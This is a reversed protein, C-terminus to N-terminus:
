CGVLGRGRFGPLPDQLWCQGRELNKKFVINNWIAIITHFYNQKRQSFFVWMGWGYRSRQRPLGRQLNPGSGLPDELQFSAQRLPSVPM